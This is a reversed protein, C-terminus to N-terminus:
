IDKPVQTFDFKGNDDKTLHWHDIHSNTQLSAYLHPFLAGGRSQEWRLSDPNFGNCEYQVVHVEAEASFYKQATTELQARTSFHIFGDRIDDASGAYNTAAKAQQWESARFVKYIHDTM